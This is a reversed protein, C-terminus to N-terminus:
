RAKPAPGRRKMREDNMTADLRELRAAQAEIHPRCDEIVREDVGCELMDEELGQIAPLFGQVGQAILSRDDDQFNVEAIIEQWDKREAAGVKWKCGRVIFEQDLYMPAFDFLPTLRVTGDPLRQVATNRPAHNDTNRMAMNLIDRRIFEVVEGVPDTVHPRFGNVLDFLSAPIGFGRLGALSALSEQHLRHLRGASDVTRDFRPVFLMDQQFLPNGGTRIGCREAVRLYAAENRLVTYDTEHRGRPLKVLWHRAAQEDPLAADAFWRGDRNETLLFKPAAGQVGTTGAALMAHMMIHDLFDERRSLIEDLAYGDGLPPEAATQERYFRVATDLRLNGVPNFAGYQALLLDQHDGDQIKLERALYKRGPGQPVLDLLFAPCPPAEGNADLGYREATLPLAFSIPLPDDGFIYEMRYEFTGTYPGKGIPNFDAAPTWRGHHFIEITSQM